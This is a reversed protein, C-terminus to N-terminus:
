TLRMGVTKKGHFGCLTNRSLSTAVDLIAQYQAVIRTLFQGQGQDEKGRLVCPLTEPLTVTRTVAWVHPKDYCLGRREEDSSEVESLARDTGM